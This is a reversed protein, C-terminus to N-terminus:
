DTMADFRDTGVGGRCHFMFTALPESTADHGTNTSATAFGHLLAAARLYPRSGTAPTEGAFGGNGFMYFRRNWASPLNIEFRIEPAILGSVRCHEPVGDASAITEAAVITNSPTAAALDACAVRPRAPALAYQTASREADIFSYGNQALAAASPHSLTLASIVLWLRLRGRM